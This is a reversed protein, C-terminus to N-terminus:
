APVLEAAGAEKAPRMAVPLGADPVLSEALQTDLRRRLTVGAVAHRTDTVRKELAFRNWCYPSSGFGNPM